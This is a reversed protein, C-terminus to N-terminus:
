DFLLAQEVLGEWAVELVEHILKNTTYQFALDHFYKHAVEGYALRETPDFLFSPDGGQLLQLFVAMLCSSMMMFHQADYLQNEGKQREDNYIPNEGKTSEGNYIPNEGQRSENNYIPNEGETSRDNYLPNEGKTSKDNFLLNGGKRIEVNYLPTADMDHGLCLALDAYFQSLYQPYLSSFKMLSLLDVTSEVLDCDDDM